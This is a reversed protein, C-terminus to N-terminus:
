KLTGNNHYFPDSIFISKIYTVGDIGRDLSLDRKPSIHNCSAQSQGTINLFITMYYIHKM